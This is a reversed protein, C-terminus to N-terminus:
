AGGTKLVRESTAHEMLAERSRYVPKFKRQSFLKEGQDMFHPSEPDASQGWPICSYSEIGDKHMFMLLMAMSGKEAVFRGSGKEIEKVGLSLLTRLSKNGEGGGFHAGSTPFLKGGRGVKIIDGWAVDTTGYLDAMKQRATELAKLLTFQDDVSISRGSNVFGADVVKFAELRFYRMLPAARDDKHYRGDWDLLRKMDAKFGSDRMNKKGAGHSVERLAKKWAVRYPDTIDFALDVAEEKTLSDDAALAQVARDGRSNKLDWSVHYIYDKYKEPQLPSNEMMYAPSINCNQMYGHPPNKIQVMDEVPHIGLWKTKSTNGPVPAGWDWGDPRIPTRGIRVYAINGDRDASMLNQEMYQNMKLGDLLENVNRAQLSKYNQELLLMQDLYPTAGVLITQKELDPQSFAPGLHTTYTPMKVPDRGKVRITVWDVQADRWEGDYEYQMPNDPNLKMAYVDATDPGGTTPAWGFHETHGYGLMFTGVIFYGHQETLVDGYVNAEYFVSMGKWTLHPDTLLIACGEASRDPSVSWENSGWGLTNGEESMEDRIAGLPWNLIMARIIALSHWPQLDLAFDSSKGHESEYAKIGRVFADAMVRIPEPATPWYAKCRKANGVMQMVYDSQVHGKGLVEALRGVAIRSNLYIDDLRDAAQAYGLAYAADADTDGYIYPVGYTDRVITAAGTEAAASNTSPICFGILIAAVVLACFRHTMM